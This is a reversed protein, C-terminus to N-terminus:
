SGPIGAYNTNNPKLTRAGPIGTFNTHPVTAGAFTLFQSILRWAENLIESM